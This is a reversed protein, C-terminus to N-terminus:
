SLQQLLRIFEAVKDHFLVLVTVFFAAYLGSLGLAIGSLKRAPTPLAAGRRALLALVVALLAKEIGLLSIFAVASAAVAAIALGSRQGAQYAEASRIDEM